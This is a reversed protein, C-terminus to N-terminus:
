HAQHKKLDPTILIYNEKFHPYDSLCGASCDDRQGTANKINENAKTDNKVTQDFVIRGDTM